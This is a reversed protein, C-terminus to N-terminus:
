VDPSWTLVNYNIRNSRHLVSGHRTRARKIGRKSAERDEAMFQPGFVGSPWTSRYSVRGQCAPARFKHIKLAYMRLDVQEGAVLVGHPSGADQGQDRKTNSQRFHWYNKLQELFFHYSAPLVEYRGVTVTAGAKVASM